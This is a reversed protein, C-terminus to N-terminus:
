LYRKPLTGQNRSRYELASDFLCDDIQLYIPGDFEKRDIFHVKDTGKFVGCQIKAFHLDNQALLRFAVSPIFKDGESHLLKWSVLNQVTVTKGSKKSIAKQLADISQTDAEPSTRQITADFSKNEGLLILELIKNPDAQRTTADIRVYTGKEVGESKVFYPTNPGHTVDVIIITKEQIREYTIRPIIQPSIGDSISNAIKDKIRFLENEKVGVIERTEDHIGIILSGGNGNAFAAITKLFNRDKDPFEKKFEMSSTEGKQIEEEIM